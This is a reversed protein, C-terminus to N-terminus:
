LGYSKRMKEAQQRDFEEDVFTAYFLLTYVTDANSYIDCTRFVKGPHFGNGDYAVRISDVGGPAITDTPYTAKLCYCSSDVKKIVFPTDGTNKFRYTHYITDRETYSGYDFAVSDLFTIQAPASLHSIQQRCSVTLLSITLLLLICYSKM